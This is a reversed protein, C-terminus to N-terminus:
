DLWRRCVEAIRRASTGGNQLPLLRRLTVADIDAHVEKGLAVALFVVSSYRTLLADANAVMHGVHGSDFVLADPMNHVEVLDFPEDRDLESVKRAAGALFRANGGLYSGPLLGPWSMIPIDAHKLVVAFSFYLVLILSVKIRDYFFLPKRTARDRSDKM